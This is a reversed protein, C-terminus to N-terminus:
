ASLILFYHFRFTWSVILRKNDVFDEPLETVKPGGELLPESLSDEEMLNFKNSTSLDKAKSSVTMVESKAGLGLDPTWSEVLTWIVQQTLKPSYKGIRDLWTSPNHGIRLVQGVQITVTTASLNAVHLKPNKKSILSDPPTYLDDPNRNSSLVKEIYLHNSGVPFNALVLVTVSTEPPIVIKAASWVNRDSNQFRTRCKFKQNKQHISWKSKVSTAKLIQVKFTHDDKDSFPLSILNEVVM